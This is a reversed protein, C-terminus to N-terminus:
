EAPHLSYTFKKTPKVLIQSMVQTVGNDAVQVTMLTTGTSKKQKLSYRDGSGGWTKISLDMASSDGLDIFFYLEEDEPASIGVIEEDKFLQLPEGDYSWIYRDEFSATIDIRSYYEESGLPYVM